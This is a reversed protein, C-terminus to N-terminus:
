KLMPTKYVEEEAIKKAKKYGADVHRVIATRPDTALIRVMTKVHARISERARRL